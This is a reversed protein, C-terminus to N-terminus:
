MASLSRSLVKELTSPEQAGSFSFEGIVFHPVGSVHHKNVYKHIETSVEDRSPTKKDDDLLDRIEESTVGSAVAAEVLVDIDNPSKEEEFYKKFMSEMFINQAESGKKALVYEAVRHSQLTNAIWGGYSFNIGEEQGVQKMYPIMQKVRAEGFKKNYAEIKNMPTESSRPNLQFPAWTVNFLDRVSKGKSKAVQPKLTVYTYIFYSSHANINTSISLQTSM